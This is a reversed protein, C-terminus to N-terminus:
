KEYADLHYDLGKKDYREWLLKDKILVKIMDLSHEQSVFRKMASVIPDDM